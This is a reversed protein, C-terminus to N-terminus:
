GWAWRFVAIGIGLWILAFGLMMAAGLTPLIFDNFLGRDDM